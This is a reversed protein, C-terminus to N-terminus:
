APSEPLPDPEFFSALYQNEVGAYKLPLTTVRVPDGEAEKDVVESALHTEVETAEGNLKGFYVERFTTTYWAGEIPLGHPGSLRYAITRPQRSAFELLLHFGHLGRRLRFTKTVTVGLPEVEARFVVEQGALQGSEGAPVPRV